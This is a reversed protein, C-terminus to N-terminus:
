KLRVEPLSRFDGGAHICFGAVRNRMVAVDDNYYLSVYPLDRAIIEQVRAYIEKRKEREVERLGMDTLRDVESNSYRGRNAGAPPISKSNFVFRFIDPETIGVWALTFLQFNGSKIDQYFTGFEYSRVDVDIGVEALQTRIVEAIRRRLRDTSTKFSLKFRPEPGPGDPDPYGARDLLERSLQPNFAYTEVNGYYAWHRPSLLGTAPEAAGKWLHKIIADRDVAHAIAERVERKRLIRDEMNFGIYNYNIGPRREVRADPRSALMDFSEPPACNQLLDVGGREFELLRTVNNTIVRFVVEELWPAGGFYGEFRALRIYDGSRADVFRFPGSGIPHNIIDDPNVNRPIIGVTMATLFPADLEALRIDVTSEDPCSVADILAFDGRFPSTSDPKRILDFTHCVDAATLVDGNHFKVDKRLHFIYRTSEPQDWSTALDGQFIGSEDLKVLSSYIIDALRSSYADTAFRPDLNSPANEIGVVLRRPGPKTPSPGACSVAVVITIILIRSIISMSNKM